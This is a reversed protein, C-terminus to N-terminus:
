IYGKDLLEQVQKMCAESERVGMRHARRFPPNRQGEETLPIASVPPKGEPNFDAMDETFVKVSNPNAKLREIVEEMGPIPAEDVDEDTKVEFSGVKTVRHCTSSEETSPAEWGHPTDDGVGAEMEVESNRSSSDDKTTDLIFCPLDENRSILDDMFKCDAETWGKHETDLWFNLDEVATKRKIVPFEMIDAQPPLPPDQCYVTHPVNKYEFDLTRDEACLTIRGKHLTNQWATGLILDIDLDNPLILAPIRAKYAGIRLPIDVQQDCEVITNSAVTVKVPSCKVRPLKLKDAISKPIFNGSAGSDFMVKITQGGIEAKFVFLTTGVHPDSSECEWLVKGESSLMSLFMGCNTSKRELGLEFHLKETQSIEREPVAPNYLKETFESMEKAMRKKTAAVKQKAFLIKVYSDQLDQDKQFSREDPKIMFSPHSSPDIPKM